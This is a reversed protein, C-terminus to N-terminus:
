SHKKNLYIKAACFFLLKSFRYLGCEFKQKKNFMLPKKKKIKPIYKRALKCFKFGQSGKLSMVIKKAITIRTYYYLSYIYPYVEPINNEQIYNLLDETGKFETLFKENFSDHFLSNPLYTHYFYNKPLCRVTKCNFLAKYIFNADEGLYVGVPYRIGKENILKLKYAVSCNHPWIEKFYKKKAIEIGSENDVFKFTDTYKKILKGDNEREELGWYIADVENSAIENLEEFLHEDYYDDADLFCIYDGTALDIGTNRATSPGSNEILQYKIDLKPNDKIFALVVKETNDKSGDNVVIIEIDQYTQGKLSNLARLIYEEVNYAPIVVSYKM